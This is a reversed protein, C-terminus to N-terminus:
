TLTVNPAWVRTKLYSAALEKRWTLLAKTLGLTWGAERTLPYLINNVQNNIVFSVSVPPLIM